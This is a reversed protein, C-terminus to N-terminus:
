RRRLLCPPTILCFLILLRRKLMADFLMYRCLTIFCCSIFLLSLIADALRCDFIIFPPLILMPSAFRLLMSIIDAYDAFHLPLMLLALLLPLFCAHRIVHAAAAADVFAAILSFRIAVIVYHFCIIFYIATHFM